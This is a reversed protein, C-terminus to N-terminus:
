NSFDYIQELINQAERYEEQRIAMKGATILTTAADHLHDNGHFLEVCELYYVKAMGNDGNLQTLSGLNFQVMGASIDDKVSRYVYFPEEFADKGQDYQALAKHCSEPFNM